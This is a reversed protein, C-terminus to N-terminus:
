SARSARVYLAFCGWALLSAMLFAAGPVQAPARPSTFFGFVHTMLPPGAISSMSFVGAMAGQLEGQADPAVRHSLLANTTPMVIAAFLWTGLWAFMMWGATALGYGAYGVAGIAIGTLATGREGLRPVLMRPVTAQAVAMIAGVVALSAGITTTSWGFRYTTYFSWTSPMVQNALNWLFLAALLGIVARQKRLQLVTGLPNARKWQFPRRREPPLSEPLVFYGYLANLGSLTAAAFFPARPGLGGLLGGLAPGVIFGVGFMASIVGFNQARKEPPSIDAVYAYAPSFSAGAMGALARGVFLWSLKPAFGMILYDVGLSAVAYLLVPRRGFRDSVNGLTPACLFQMTAYAFTLWGAYVVSESPALGTLTRLLTPMVPIILGFGITDLLLTIAIFALAQKGPPRPSM